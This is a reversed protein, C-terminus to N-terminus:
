RLGVKALSMGLYKNLMNDRSLFPIPPPKRIGLKILEAHFVSQRRRPEFAQGKMFMRIADKRRGASAQVCGMHLYHLHNKPEERLAEVCLSIAKNYAHQEAALCYGYGSRTVPSVDLDYAEEFLPLAVATSGKALAELGEQELAAARANRRRVVLNERKAAHLSM